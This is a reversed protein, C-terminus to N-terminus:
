TGSCGLMNRERLVAVSGYKLIQLLSLAFIFIEFGVKIGVSDSTSFFFFYYHFHESADGIPYVIKHM